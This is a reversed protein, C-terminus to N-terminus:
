TLLVTTVSMLLYGDPERSEPSPICNDPVSNEVSEAIKPFSIEGEGIERDFYAGM